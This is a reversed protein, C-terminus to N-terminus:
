SALSQGGWEPGDLRAEHGFGALGQGDPFFIAALAEVPKEGFM